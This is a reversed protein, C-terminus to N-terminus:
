FAQSVSTSVSARGIPPPGSLRQEVLPPDLSGALMKTAKAVSPGNWNLTGEM